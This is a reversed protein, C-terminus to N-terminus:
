SLKKELLEFAKTFAATEAEKRTDFLGQSDLLYSNDHVMSYFGEPVYHPNKDDEDIERTYQIELEISIWVENKDFFDYLLRKGKFIESFEFLGFECDPKIHRWEKLKLVAKPYQEKIKEWNM